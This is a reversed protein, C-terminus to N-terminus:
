DFNQVYCPKASLGKIYVQFTSFTPYVMCYGVAKGDTEAVLVSRKSDKGYIDETFDSLLIDFRLRM